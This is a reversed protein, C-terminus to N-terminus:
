QLRRGVFVHFVIAAPLGFGFPGSPSPISGRDTTPARTRRAPRTGSLVPAPTRFAPLRVVPVGPDRAHDDREKGVDVRVELREELADLVRAGSSGLPEDEEPVMHAVTGVRFAYELHECTEDRAAPDGDEPVV